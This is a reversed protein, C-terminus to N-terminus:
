ATSEQQAGLPVHMTLSPVSIPFDVCYPIKGQALHHPRQPGEGEQSRRLSRFSFEIDTRLGKSFVTICLQFKGMKTGPIYKKPNELYDFLTTEDRDCSFSLTLEFLRSLLYYCLQFEGTSPLRRTPRLALSLSLLFPLDSSFNFSRPFSFWITSPSLSSPDPNVDSSHFSPRYAVVYRYILSPFRFM